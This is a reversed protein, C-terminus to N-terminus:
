FDDNSSQGSSGGGIVRESSKKANEIGKNADKVVNIKGDDDADLIELSTDYVNKVQKQAEKWIAEKIDEGSIISAVVASWALDYIKEKRTDDNKFEDYM